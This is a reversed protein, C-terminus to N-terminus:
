TVKDEAVTTKPLLLYALLVLFTAAFYFLKDYAGAIGIFMTSLYGLLSVAFLYLLTAGFGLRLYALLMLMLVLNPFYFAFDTPLPQWSILPV